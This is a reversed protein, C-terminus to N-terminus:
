IIIIVITIKVMVLIFMLYKMIFAKFMIMWLFLQLIIHQKIYQNVLLIKILDQFYLIILLHFYNYSHIIILMKPLFLYVQPNIYNLIINKLLM